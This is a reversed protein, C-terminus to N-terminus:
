LDAQLIVPCHTPDKHSACSAPPPLWRCCKDPSPSLGSSEASGGHEQGARKRSRERELGTTKSVAKALGRVERRGDSRCLSPTSQRTWWTTYM